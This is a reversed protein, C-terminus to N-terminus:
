NGLSSSTSRTDNVKRFAIVFTRFIAIIILDFNDISRNAFDLFAVRLCGLLALVVVFHFENTSGLAYSKGVHTLMADIVGERTVAVVGFLILVMAVLAVAVYAVTRDFLALIPIGVTMGVVLTRNGLIPFMHTVAALLPLFRLARLFPLLLLPPSSKLSAGYMVIYCEGTIYM